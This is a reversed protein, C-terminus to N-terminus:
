LRQQTADNAGFPKDGAVGEYHEAFFHKQDKGGAVSTSAGYDLEPAEFQIAEGVRVNYVGAKTILGVQEACDFYFLKAPPVLPPIRMQITVETSGWTNRAVIKYTRDWGACYYKYAHPHVASM